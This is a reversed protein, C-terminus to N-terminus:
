APRPISSRPAVGAQAPASSALAPSSNASAAGQNAPHRHALHFGIWFILIFVLGAAAVMWRTALDGDGLRDRLDDFRERLMLRIRLPPADDGLASLKAAGSVTPEPFPLSPTSSKAAPRPSIPAPDAPAPVSKGNASPASAGNAPASTGNASPAYTASASPAPRPHLNRPQVPTELAYMIEALGWEGSMGKSVIEDLPSPLSFRSAAELTHEQTLAVLLLVALDHVDRRKAQRGDEGEPAERICDSRLKVVEGVAFVNEPEIHEHVFGHTHLADLASALSSALQRVDSVTLRYSGVVEALNAEVPEMVAYLVNTDDLVIQGFHELKLVNPHGLAEVGRWRALIEDEDFHSEILRIVTPEGTGTSTSYFASRGEPRLLKKLPFDNITRGEYDTWLEM